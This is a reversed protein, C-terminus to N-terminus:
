FLTSKQFITLQEVKSFNVLFMRNSQKPTLSTGENELFLWVKLIAVFGPFLVFMSMIKNKKKALGTSLCSAVSHMDSIRRQIKMVIMKEASLM